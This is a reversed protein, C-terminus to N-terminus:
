MGCTYGGDITLCQATIAAASESALFGILAAAEQAEVFRRLPISKRANRAMMQLDAGLQQAQKSLAEQLMPTDIWGPLVANVTIRRTALDLALAKTYGLVGHKAACYGTNRAKGARGLISAVNIIRGGNPLRPLCAATVSFVSHLNVQLVRQWTLIDEPENEDAIGANNIVIDIRSEHALIQQLRPTLTAADALDVTYSAARVASLEATLEALGATDRDLLLLAAGGSAFLKATEAGIGRAAGTILAIKGDMDNTNM